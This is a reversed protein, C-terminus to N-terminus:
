ARDPTLGLLNEVRGRRTARWATTVNTSMRGKPLPHPPIASLPNGLIARVRTKLTDGYIAQSSFAHQRETRHDGHCRCRMDSANENTAAKGDIPFVTDKGNM